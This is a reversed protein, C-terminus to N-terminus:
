VRHGTKKAQVVAAATNVDKELNGSYPVAEMTASLGNNHLNGRLREMFADPDGSLIVILEDGSFWRGRLLVDSSRLHIARKIKGNVAEYGFRKNAGHCDDIDLFVVWRARKEIKRLEFPIAPRTTIGYNPDTSLEVLARLCEDRQKKLDKYSPLPM